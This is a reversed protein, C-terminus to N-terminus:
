AARPLSYMGESVRLFHESNQLVKRIQERWFRNSTPRKGELESYIDALSARGGLKVMATLVTELWVSRPGNVAHDFKERTEEPLGRIDAVEPFLRFGVLRPQFDRTFLGFILPKSLDFFLDRPLIEQMITWTKNLDRVTRSTQVFYAPLVFGAKQGNKLISACREMLGEFVRLSFPPNGSVASVGSPLPVYRCDGTAVERGTRRRAEAAMQPDIESGFAPVDGPIAALCNGTGCTPEWVMDSAGLDSFHADFLMEAAWAPTMYQGLAKRPDEEKTSPVSPASVLTNM